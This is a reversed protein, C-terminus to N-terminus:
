EAGEALEWIARAERPDVPEVKVTSMPVRRPLHQKAWYQPHLKRVHTRLNTSQAAAYPCVPCKYPKAGTHVRIHDRIHTKVHFQRLCVPCVYAGTPLKEVRVGEVTEVAGRAHRVM